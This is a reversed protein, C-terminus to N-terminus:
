MHELKLTQEHSKIQRKALRIIVEVHTTYHLNSYVQDYFSAQSTHHVM